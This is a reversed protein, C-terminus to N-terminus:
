QLPGALLRFVIPGIVFFGILVHRLRPQTTADLLSLGALPVIAILPLYYRPYADMMWGFDLHRRYSFAIHIIFTAAFALTGAVVIVDLATETKRAIRRLSLAIGAVACLAAIIPIILVGYNLANRPALIPAWELVFCGIFYAAYGLPTMRAASDWGALRAGDHLLALQGPTNPTPSGYQVIFAIYPAAALALVLALPATWWARFRGRWALWLLVGSLLGGALMLGTLKTWSAVLVGFLALALWRTRGTAILQWAGLMTFAGGAFAANDNNVAGALPMLLPICILPVAYAYFVSTSLRAYIGIMLLAAIGLAAFAVNILRHVIIADPHGELTPGLVALLAYYPSPHNLYNPAPTFTFHAPELMRMDTLTPWLQHSHQIHAVYSAHAVEDFGQMIDKRLACITAVVILLVLIFISGRVNSAAVPEQAQPLMHPQSLSSM